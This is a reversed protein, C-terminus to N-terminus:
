RVSCMQHLGALGFCQKPCRHAPWHWSVKWFKWAAASMHTLSSGWVGLQLILLIGIRRYLIDFPSQDVPVEVLIATHSYFRLRRWSEWRGIRYSQQYKKQIKAALYIGQSIGTCNLRKSLTCGRDFFGGNNSSSGHCVKRVRWCCWDKGPRCHMTKPRHDADVVPPAEGPREALFPAKFLTGQRM